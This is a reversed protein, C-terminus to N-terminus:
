KMIKKFDTPLDLKFSMERGKIPHKFILQDNHLYVRNAKIGGYKIDGVISHGIEKLHARIQNKRGTKIYVELMTLQKNKKVVRYETIAEKGEKKNNTSYVFKNKNEMLWTHIVGEKKVVDGSVIAIYRRTKVLANWKGQMINKIYENKAFLVIGSTERDLRHVIFIKNKSNDKKVYERVKNYLTNKEQKNTAVTLLGAPKSVVIIENDEHLIHINTKDRKNLVNHKIEIVDGKKLSYNYKTVIHGKINIMENVLLSKIKKHSLDRLNELLYKLLTDDKEVTIKM